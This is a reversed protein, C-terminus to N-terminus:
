KSLRKDPKSAIINDGRSALKEKEILKSFLVPDAEELRRSQERNRKSFYWGLLLLFPSFVSFALVLYSEEVLELNKTLNLYALYERHLIISFITWLFCYLVYRYEKIRALVWRTLRWTLIAKLFYNM